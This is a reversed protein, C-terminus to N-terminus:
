ALRSSAGKTALLISFRKAGEGWVISGYQEGGEGEYLCLREGGRRLTETRSTSQWRRTGEEKKGRGAVPIFFLRARPTCAIEAFFLPKNGRRGERTSQVTTSSITHKKGKRNLKFCLVMLRNFGTKAFGGGGGDRNENHIEGTVGDISILRAHV